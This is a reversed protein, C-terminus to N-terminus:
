LLFLPRLRGAPIFSVERFSSVVVGVLEKLVMGLTTEEGRDMELKDDDGEFDEAELLSLNM